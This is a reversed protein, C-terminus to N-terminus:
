TVIGTLQIAISDLAAIHANSDGSGGCGKNLTLDALGVIVTLVIHLHHVCFPFTAPHQMSLFHQFFPDILKTKTTTTTKSRDEYDNM